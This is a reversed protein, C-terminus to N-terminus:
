KRKPKKASIRDEYMKEVYKDQRKVADPCTLYMDLFFEQPILYDVHLNIDDGPDESTEFCKEWKKLNVLFYCGHGTVYDLNIRMHVHLLDRSPSREWHKKISVSQIADYAADVDPNSAKQSPVATFLKKLGRKREHANFPIKLFKALLTDRSLCAPHALVDGFASLDNDSISVNNFTFTAHFVNRMLKQFPGNLADIVTEVTCFGNEEREHQHYHRLDRSQEQRVAKLGEEGKKIMALYVDPDEIAPDSSPAQSCQIEEDLEVASEEDSSVSAEVDAFRMKKLPPQKIKIPGPPRKGLVIEKSAM